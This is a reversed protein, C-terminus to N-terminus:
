TKALFDEDQISGRHCNIKSPRKEIKQTQSSSRIPLLSTVRIGSRFVSADDHDMGDHCHIATAHFLVVRPAELFSGEFVRFFNM